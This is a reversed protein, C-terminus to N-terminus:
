NGGLVKAFSKGPSCTGILRGCGAQPTTKLHYQHHIKRQYIKIYRVDACFHKKLTRGRPNAEGKSGGHRFEVSLESTFLATSCRTKM